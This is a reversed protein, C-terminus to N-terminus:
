ENVLEALDDAALERSKADQFPVAGMSADEPSWVRWRSELAPFRCILRASWTM